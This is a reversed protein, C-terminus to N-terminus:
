VEGGWCIKDGSTGNVSIKSIDKITFTVSSGPSLTFMHNEADVPTDSTYGIYVYDKNTPESQITVVKSSQPPLSQSEGILSLNGQFLMDNGDVVVIGKVKSAGDSGELPEYQNTEPNFYQPIPKNNVDNKIAETNYAM